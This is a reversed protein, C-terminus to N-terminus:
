VRERCSARGIKFALHAAFAKWALMPSASAAGFPMEAGAMCPFRIGDPFGRLFGFSHLAVERVFFSTDLPFAVEPALFAFHAVEGHQWFSSELFSLFFCLCVGLPQLRLKFLRLNGWLFDVKSACFAYHEFRREQARLKPESKWARELNGRTRKRAPKPVARNHDKTTM